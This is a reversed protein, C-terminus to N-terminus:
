VWGRVQYIAWGAVESLMSMVEQTRTRVGPDVAAFHGGRQWGPDRMCLNRYGQRVFCARARSTHYQSTVLMLRTVQPDIPAVRAVTRPHDATRTAERDLLIDDEPVGYAIAVSALDDAGRGRSSVIVKKAWGQRYLHAAEVAREHSGGLVVIYDAPELPDVQVLRDALAEGAPTFVLVALLSVFVVAAGRLTVLVGRLIRDLPGRRAMRPAPDSPANGSVDSNKSSPM